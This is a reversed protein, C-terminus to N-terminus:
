PNEALYEEFLKLAQPMNQRGFGIRLHQNGYDFKTSPMLMVSKKNVVDECFDEIDQNLM